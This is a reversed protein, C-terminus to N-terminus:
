ASSVPPSLAPDSLREEEAFEYVIHPHEQRIMELSESLLKCIVEHDEESVHVSIGILRMLLRRTVISDGFL